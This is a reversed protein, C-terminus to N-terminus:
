KTKDFFHSAAGFLFFFSFDLVDLMGFRGAFVVTVLSHTWSCVSMKILPFGFKKGKHILM